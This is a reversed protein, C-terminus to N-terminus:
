HSSKVSTCLSVYNLASILAKPAVFNDKARLILAICSLMLPNMFHEKFQRSFEKDELSVFETKGYM